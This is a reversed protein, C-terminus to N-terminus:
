MLKALDTIVDNMIPTVADIITQKPTAFESYSDWQDLSAIFTDFQDELEAM